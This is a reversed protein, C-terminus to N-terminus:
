RARKLWAPSWLGIGLTAFTFQPGASVTTGGEAFISVYHLWLIRRAVRSPGFELRLAGAGTRASAGALWDVRAAVALGDTVPWMLVLGLRAFGSTVYDGALSVHSALVPPIIELGVTAEVGSGGGTWAGGRAILRLTDSAVCRGTCVDASGGGDGCDGVEVSCVSWPGCDESSHCSALAHRSLPLSVIILLARM